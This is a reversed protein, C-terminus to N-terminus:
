RWLLLNTNSGLLNSSALLTGLNSLGKLGPVYSSSASLLQGIRYFFGVPTKGLRIKQMVVM